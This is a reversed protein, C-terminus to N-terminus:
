LVFRLKGLMHNDLFIRKGNSEWFSYGVRSHGWSMLLTPSQRNNLKWKNLVLKADRSDHSSFKDMEVMHQLKNM